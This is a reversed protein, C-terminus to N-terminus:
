GSRLRLLASEAKKVRPVKLRSGRRQATFFVYEEEVRNIRYEIIKCNKNPTTLYNKTFM